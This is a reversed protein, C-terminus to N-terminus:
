LGKAWWMTFLTFLGSLVAQMMWFAGSAFVNTLDLEKYAFKRAGILKSAAMWCVGCIFSVAAASLYLATLNLKMRGELIALQVPELLVAWWGLFLVVGIVVLVAGIAGTSKTVKM